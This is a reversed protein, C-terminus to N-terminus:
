CCCPESRELPAATIVALLVDRLRDTHSAFVTLVEETTVGGGETVGADLDTVLAVAAYCIGAERALVAEPHGTMNVIDWGQAAFFRSEARTSFRPGEIVVMTGGDQPIWEVDTATKVVQQRLSACYPDAFSVHIAHDSFADYFTQTRGRTQDVLQDPIVLSGPGLDTRFSGVACPALIRGVGLQRLAAINARYNVKHPPLEHALGHRPLFAVRHEGVSALTIPASPAGYDTSVEVLDPDTFLRYLGSGGIVAFDARQEITKTM